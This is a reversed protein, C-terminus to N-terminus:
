TSELCIVEQINNDYKNSDGDPGRRREKERRKALRKSQSSKKVKFVEGDEETFLFYCHLM